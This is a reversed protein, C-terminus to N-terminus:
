IPGVKCAIAVWIPSVVSSNFDPKDSPDIDTSVNWSARILRFSSPPPPNSASDVTALSAVPPIAVDTALMFVATVRPNALM